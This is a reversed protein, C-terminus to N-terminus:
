NLTIAMALTRDVVLISEDAASPSVFSSDDFTFINSGSSKRLVTRRQVAKKYLAIFVMPVSAVMQAVTTRSPPNEVRMLFSSKQYTVTMAKTWDM